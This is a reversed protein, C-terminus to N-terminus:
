AAGCPQRWRIGETPASDSVSDCFGGPPVAGPGDDVVARASLALRELWRARQSASM